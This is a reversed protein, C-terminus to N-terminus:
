VKETWTFPVIELVGIPKHLEVYKEAEGKIFPGQMFVTGGVPIDSIIFWRTITRPEKYEKWISNKYTVIIDGVDCFSNANVSIYELIANGAKTFAICEAINQTTSSKYKKGVQFTPEEKHQCTSCNGSRCM